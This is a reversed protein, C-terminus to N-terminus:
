TNMVNMRVWNGWPRIPRRSATINAEASEEFAGVDGVYHTNEIGYRGIEDFFDSPAFLALLGQAIHYVAVIALISKLGREGIM